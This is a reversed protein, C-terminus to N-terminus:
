VKYSQFNLAEKVPLAPPSLSIPEPEDCFSNEIYIRLYFYIDSM